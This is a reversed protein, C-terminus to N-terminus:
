GGPKVIDQLDWVQLRKDGVFSQEVPSTGVYHDVLGVEGLSSTRDMDRWVTGEVVYGSLEQWSNWSLASSLVSV